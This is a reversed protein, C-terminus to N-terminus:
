QYLWVYIIITSKTTKAAYCNEDLCLWAVIWGFGGSEVSGCKLFKSIFYNFQTKDLWSKLRKVSKRIWIQLMFGVWTTWHTIPRIQWLSIWGVIKAESHGRTRDEYLKCLFVLEFLVSFFEGREYILVKSFGLEGDLLRTLM